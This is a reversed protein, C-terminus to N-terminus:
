LVRLLMKELAEISVNKDSIQHKSAPVSARIAKLAEKLPTPDSVNTLYRRIAGKARQYWSVRNKDPKIQQKIISKKKSESAEAFDALQNISIIPM